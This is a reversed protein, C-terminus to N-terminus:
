LQEVLAEEKQQEKEILNQRAAEHTAIPLYQFVVDMRKDGNGGCESKRGEYQTRALRWLAHGLKGYGFSRHEPESSQSSTRQARRLEAETLSDGRFLSTPYKTGVASGLETFTKVANAGCQNKGIRTVRVPM